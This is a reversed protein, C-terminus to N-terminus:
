TYVKTYVNRNDGFKRSVEEGKARALWAKGLWLRAAQSNHSVLNIGQRGGERGPRDDHHKALPPM